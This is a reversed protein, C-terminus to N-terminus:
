RQQWSDKFLIRMKKRFLQQERCGGRQGNRNMMRQITLAYPAGCIESESKIM